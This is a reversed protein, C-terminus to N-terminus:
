ARICWWRMFNSKSRGNERLAIKLGAVGHSGLRVEGSRVVGGGGSAGDVGVVAAEVAGIACKVGNAGGGLFAAKCGLVEEGVGAVVLIPENDIVVSLESVVRVGLGVLYLGAGGGRVVRADCGLAVVAAPARKPVILTLLCKHVRVVLGDGALERRPAPRAGLHAQGEDVRVVGVFLEEEDGVVGAEISRASADVVDALENAEV